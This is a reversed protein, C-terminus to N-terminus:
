QQSLNLLALKFCQFNSPFGYDNKTVKKPEIWTYNDHEKPDIIIKEIHAPLILSYYKEIIPNGKKSLFEQSQNLDILQLFQNKPIGLEEEAERFAGQLFDEGEEVKGTINQWFNGRKENTRLLLVDYPQPKTLPNERFVVIQVKHKVV